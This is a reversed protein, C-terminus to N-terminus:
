SSIGQRSHAGIVKNKDWHMKNKFHLSRTCMCLKTFVWFSNDQIDKHVNCSTNNITTIIILIHM